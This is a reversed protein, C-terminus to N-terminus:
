SVVRGKPRARYKEYLDKHKNDTSVQRGLIFLDLVQTQIELPNGDTVILNAIKGAEITGMRDGLGLMEAGNKMVAELAAEQPLGYPVAQAAEYPLTRSDSSNFTAFAIKVGASYLKGANAYAEDYSPDSGAPMAQSPGLIVQVDREALWDAIKGAERGGTLVFRIDQEQAWTVANKIDREGNAELLVPMEGSVVKAMAELQLNRRTEGAAAARAYQRGGDMWENLLEVRERYEKEVESFARPAGFFFGGFRRRSSMSPYNIVMAAGPDIDMEEVTWGDLGVLSAQGAIIGGQPASMTHTIGNARAVPIHETSPHIATAAQLHPNFDGQENSDNTVDVAGIETLGLQSVADFMGPYVHKGTADVIEAGSPPRVNPGVEVIRGDRIVVTGVFTDGALTHITGGQIAYTQAEAGGAFALTAVVVGLAATGRRLIRTMGNM